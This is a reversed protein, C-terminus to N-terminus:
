TKREGHRFCSTVNSIFIIILVDHVKFLSGPSITLIPIFSVRIPILSTINGEWFLVDCLTEKKEYWLSKDIVINIILSHCTTSKLWKYNSNISHFM